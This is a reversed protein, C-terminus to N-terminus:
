EMAAPAIVTARIAAAGGLEQLADAPDGASSDVYHHAGLERAGAEKDTGHAIAVVEFGMRAAFRVALHDVGGVGLM